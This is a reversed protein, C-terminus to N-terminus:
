VNQQRGPQNQAAQSRAARNTGARGSPRRATWPERVVRFGRRDTTYHPVLDISQVYWAVWLKLRLVAPSRAFRKPVPKRILAMARQRARSEWGMRGIQAPTKPTAAEKTEPASASVEWATSYDSQMPPPTLEPVTGIREAVVLLITRSRSRFPIRHGVEAPDVTRYWRPTPRRPEVLICDLIRYGFSLTLVRFVLEPSFQYFGHGAANNVPMRLILHGGPRVLRMANRIATPFDFVHELTGGEVVASFQGEWEHPIPSNLDLVLTAGEYDSADIPEVEKAGLYRLVGDVYGDCDRFIRAAVDPSTEDRCAALAAAIGAQGDFLSQHGLTATKSFDVGLDASHFLFRLGIEDYGV